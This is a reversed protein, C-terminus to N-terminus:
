PLLNARVAEATFGISVWACEGTSPDRDLDPDAATRLVPESVGAVDALDTTSVAGGAEANRLATSSIDAEFRVENATFSHTDGDSTIFSLPLIGFSTTLRGDIIAGPRAGLDIAVVFDQGSEIRTTVPDIDPPLGQKQIVRGKPTLWQAITIRASSGDRFEHVAQLSGKGYTTTGIITAREYDQLAGVVIESASATGGNVLVVLPLEYFTVGGDQPALRIGGGTISGIPPFGRHDAM